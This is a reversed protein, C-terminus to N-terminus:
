RSETERTTTQRGHRTEQFDHFSKRGMYFGMATYRAILYVLILVLPIGVLIAGVVYIWIM